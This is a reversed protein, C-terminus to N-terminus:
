DCLQMDASSLSLTVSLLFAFRVNCSSMVDRHGLRTRFEFYYVVFSQHDPTNWRLSSPVVAACVGLCAKRFLADITLLIRVGFEIYSGDTLM